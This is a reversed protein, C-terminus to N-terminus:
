FKYKLHTGGKGWGWALGPTSLLPLTFWLSFSRFPFFVCRQQTDDAFNESSAKFPSYFKQRGSVPSPLPPCMHASADWASLVIHVLTGATCARPSCIAPLGILRPIPWPYPLLSLFFQFCFNLDKLSSGRHKIWSALPLLQCYKEKPKSILIYRLQKRLNNELVKM